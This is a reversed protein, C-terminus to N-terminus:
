QIGAKAPIVYTDGRVNGSTLGRSRRGGKDNGTMHEAVVLYQSPIWNQFEKM